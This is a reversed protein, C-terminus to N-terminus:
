CAQLGASRHLYSILVIPHQEAHMCLMHLTVGSDIESCRFNWFNGQPAHGCYHYYAVRLKQGFSLIALIKQYKHCHMITPRKVYPLANANVKLKHFYICYGDHHMLINNYSQSVNNDGYGKVMVSADMKM